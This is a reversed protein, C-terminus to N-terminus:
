QAIEAFLEKPFLLFFYSLETDLDDLLEDTEKEYNAKFLFDDQFYRLNEKKWSLHIPNKAKKKGHGHNAFNILAEDDSSSVQEDNESDSDYLAIDDVVEEEDSSSVMFDDELLDADDIVRMQTVPQQQNVSTPKKGYFSGSNIALIFSFSFYNM